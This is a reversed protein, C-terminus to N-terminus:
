TALSAPTREISEVWVDFPGLLCGVELADILDAQGEVRLEVRTADAHIQQCALGLRQGHRRIWPLFSASGLDGRIVFCQHTNSVSAPTM